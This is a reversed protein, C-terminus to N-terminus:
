PMFSAIEKADAGNWVRLVGDECGAAVVKGDATTASCYVYDPCGKFERVTGGNSARHRFVRKDGSCSIFEDQMGIFSLSTVQKSYTSITRAQEGTEANWVKIANDAGASVLQTGDGKFSVDMVHHTHGEYSRVHAGTALDFVKVFKDAAASALLKGDKSFDVGYVTDSHANEFSRVLKGDAVNWLTLEGSRSAEGGGAALQSGDPSFALALVRDKFVSPKDKGQPGLTRVLKWAPFAAARSVKGDAQQVLLAGSASAVTVPKAAEPLTGPLLDVAAGDAVNWLRLTGNSDLTAALTNSVFGAFTTKITQKAAADAATHAEAAVKAEAEVSALLKKREAVKAEARKVAQEALEKGKQASKLTNEANTVGDRAAQEAKTADELKKKLGADEPKEDSAKKAAAVKPTEEGLKKKAAAVADTAKKLEEEAKKTSDQQEKVRKEDETVQNKVVTVRADRVAKDATRDALHRAANLDANLAAVAKAGAALWLQAQGDATVTVVNTGNPSISASAVPGAATIAASPQLNDLKRLEVINGETRCLLSTASVTIQKIAGKDSKIADALNLKKEAAVLTLPRLTGDEQLVVLKAGGEIWAAAVAKVGLADSVALEAGDARNLLRVSGDAGSTSIWQNEAGHLGLLTVAAPDQGGVQGVVQSNATDVIRVNGDAQQLAALSGDASVAMRITNAPAAIPQIFATDRQWLKINQFGSTALMQGNPHFAAAHVYDRHATQAPSKLEALAPDLLSTKRDQNLLDYITVNGARGAAVFRGFPGTDVAYIANLEPNIAQWKMNAASTVGGAKAGELIWQRLVGLQKPTLKKAQVENPWPPMAPEEMRAAVQYLYSEDPKGPVISPGASGGKMIAATDELNLDSESKALNHCAICNAQLIPYVDREFEVPRGLKAEEPTIPKEEEDALIVPAVVFVALAATFRCSITKM